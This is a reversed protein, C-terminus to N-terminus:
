RQVVRVGRNRERVVGLLFHIILNNMTQINGIIESIEASSEQVRALSYM